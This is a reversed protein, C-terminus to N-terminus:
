DVTHADIFELVEKKIPSHKFGWEEKLIGRNEMSLHALSERKLFDARSELEDFYDDPSVIMRQYKGRMLELRLCLDRGIDLFGGDEDEWVLICQWHGHSRNQEDIVWRQRQPNWRARLKSDFQKLWAKFESDAERLAM